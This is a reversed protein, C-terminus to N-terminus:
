FYLALVTEFSLPNMRMMVNDSWESRFEVPKFEYKLNVGFGIRSQPRFEIGAKAFLGPPVDEKAESVGSVFFQLGLGANYNWKASLPAVYSTLLSAVTIKISRKEVFYGPSPSSYYYVQEIYDGDGINTVVEANVQIRRHPRYLLGGGAMMSTFARPNNVVQGGWQSDTFTPLSNANHRYNFVGYIGLTQEQPVLNLYVGADDAFADVPLETYGSAVIEGTQVDVIRANVQYLGDVKNLNGMLLASAGLMQGLKVATASDTAGSSQLKQETLLKNLDGREVVTFNANAVFRHSMLESVAFGVRQRRLKEECSFPFVALTAKGAGTKSEYGKILSEALASLKGSAPGAYANGAFCMAFFLFLSKMVTKM